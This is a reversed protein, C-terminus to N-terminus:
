GRHYGIPEVSGTMAIPGRHQVITDGRRSGHKLHDDAGPRVSVWPDPIWVGRHRPEVGEFTVREVTVRDVAKATDIDTLKM